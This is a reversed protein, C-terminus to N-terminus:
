FAKFFLTAVSLNKNKLDNYSEEYKKDFLRNLGINSILVQLYYDKTYDKNDETYTDCYKSPLTVVYAEVM